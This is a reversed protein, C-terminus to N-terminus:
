FATQVIFITNIVSSKEMCLSTLNYVKDCGYAVNKHVFAYAFHDTHAM